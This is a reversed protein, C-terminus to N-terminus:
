WATGALQLCEQNVSDSLQLASHIYTKIVMASVPLVGAHKSWWVCVQKEKEASFEQVM